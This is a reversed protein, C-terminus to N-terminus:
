FFEIPELARYEHQLDYDWINLKGKVHLVPRNFLVPKTVIFHKQGPIAHESPSDTVVDVIDVHGIIAAKRWFPQRKDEKRLMMGNLMKYMEYQKKDAKPKPITGGTKEDVDLYESKNYDLVGALHDICDNFQEMCKYDFDARFDPLGHIDKPGSSHIYLRGRYKTNWTRNEVDKQGICLLYSLPNRVSLVKIQM